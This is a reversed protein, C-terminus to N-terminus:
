LSCLASIIGTTEYSTSARKGRLGSSSRRGNVSGHERLNKKRNQKPTENVNVPQTTDTYGPTTRRQTGVVQLPFPPDAFGVTEASARSKRRLQETESEMRRVDDDVEREDRISQSSAPPKHNSFPSATALSKFRRLPPGKTQSSVSQSRSRSPHQISPPEQSSTKDTSSGAQVIVLSGAEGNGGNPVACWVAILRKINRM